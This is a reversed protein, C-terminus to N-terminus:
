RDLAIRDLVLPSRAAEAAAVAFLEDAEDHRGGLRALRALAHSVPGWTAGGGGYCDLVVTEGLHPALLPQLVEGGRRDGLDAAVHALVALTLLRNTDRPVAFGSAAFGGYAEAATAEDDAESACLALVARYCPIEPYADAAAALLGLVEGARRQYLRVNVTTVALCARAEFVGPLRQAAEGALREADDLRGDAIAAVARWTGTAWRWYPDPYRDVLAEAATLADDAAPRDNLQVLDAHRYVQALILHEDPVHAAPLRLVRDADALRRQPGMATADGFRQALVCSALLPLDLPELAEARALSRALLEVREDVADTLLISVALERELHSLLVDRRRPDRDLDATALAEIADRLLVAQTPREVAVGRGARGVIALTAEVLEVPLAHHKALTITEFLTARAADYERRRVAAQGLGVMARARAAPADASDLAARFLETAEDWAGVAM